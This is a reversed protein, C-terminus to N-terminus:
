HMGYEESFVQDYLKDGVLLKEGKKLGCEKLMEECHRALGRRMPLIVIGGGRFALNVDEKPIIGMGERMAKPIVIQGSEGVRVKCIMTDM